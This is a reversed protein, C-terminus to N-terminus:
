PVADVSIIDWDEFWGPVTGAPDIYFEGWPTLYNNGPPFGEYIEITQFGITNLTLM